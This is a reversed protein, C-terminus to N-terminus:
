ARPDDSTPGRFLFEVVPEPEEHLWTESAVLRATARTIAHHSTTAGFRLLLGTEDPRDLLVAWQPVMPAADLARLSAATAQHRSPRDGPGGSASGDLARHLAALSRGPLPGEHLVSWKPLGGRVRLGADRLRRVLERSPTAVAGADLARQREEEDVDYHDGQFGVRRKGISHAFRHLEETSHDSVLHAWLRGRWPWRPEDVLIM